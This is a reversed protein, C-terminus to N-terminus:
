VWAYQLNVQLGAWIHLTSHIPLQMSDKRLKIEKLRLVKGKKM